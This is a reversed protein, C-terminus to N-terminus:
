SFHAAMISLNQPNNDVFYIYFTIVKSILQQYDDKDYYKM